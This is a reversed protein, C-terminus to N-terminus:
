NVSPPRRIQPRIVAAFPPLSALMEADTKERSWLRIVLHWRGLQLCWALWYIRYSMIDPRTLAMGISWQVASRFPVIEVLRRM